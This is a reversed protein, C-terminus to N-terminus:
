RVSTSLLYKALSSRMSRICPTMEYTIKNIVIGTLYSIQLVKVPFYFTPILILSVNFIMDVM